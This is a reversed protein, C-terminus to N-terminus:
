KKREKSVKMKVPVGRLLQHDNDFCVCKHTSCVWSFLSCINWLHRHIIVYVNVDIANKAVDITVNKLKVSLKLACFYNVSFFERKSNFLWHIRHIYLALPLSVIRIPPIYPTGSHRYYFNFRSNWSPIQMSMMYRCYWFLNILTYTVDRSTYHCFFTFFLTKETFCM